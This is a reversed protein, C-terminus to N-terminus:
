DRQINIFGIPNSKGCSCVISINLKKKTIGFQINQNDMPDDTVGIEKKCSLCTIYHESM